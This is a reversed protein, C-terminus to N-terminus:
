IFKEWLKIENKPICVRRYCLTLLELLELIHQIKKTWQYQTRPHVTFFVVPTTKVISRPKSWIKKYYFVGYMDLFGLCNM